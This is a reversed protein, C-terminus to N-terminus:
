RDWAKLQSLPDVPVSNKAGTRWGNPWLEFHLHPGSADGTAGLACLPQGEAVAQGPRVKTSSRVCHAFFYDPGTVSHMVVYEGAAGAQYSTFRVVGATPAVNALGQVALIDVGQHTHDGRGVGFLDGYSHPGAVPFTGPAGSPKVPPLTAPAPAPAPVVVPPLVTLRTRGTAGSVRRLQHGASDAAHIRAIYRGPSLTTGSPWSARLTRGTPVKGLDIRVISGRQGRDPQLVMRAAVSPAGSQVFRVSVSPLKGGARVRNPAVRFGRAVPRGRPGVPQGVGVGGTSKTSTTAGAELGGPSAALAASPLAALGAILLALSGSLRALGTPM